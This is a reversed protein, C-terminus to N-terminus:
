QNLDGVYHANVFGQLIKSKETELKQFVLGLETTERLYRLV